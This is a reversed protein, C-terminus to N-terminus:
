HAELHDTFLRAGQEEMPSLGGEVRRGSGGLQTVQVSERLGGCNLANIARGAGIKKAKRGV